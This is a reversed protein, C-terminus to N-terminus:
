VGPGTTLDPTHDDIGTLRKIRFYTSVMKDFEYKQRWRERNGLNEKVKVVTHSGKLRGPLSSWLFTFEPALCKAEGCGDRVIRVTLLLGIQTDPASMNSVANGLSYIVPVSETRGDKGTREIYGFDQVVHPHTGVILDAGNEALWEATKEQSASHSTSYEEGWHPLAIIFDAGLRGARLLAKRIQARDTFYTGPYGKGFGSNTGYTFNLFAIRLGKVNMMLPHNGAEDGANGASGAMRTGYEAELRRYVELTRELGSKGRDFIHNNATLFVDIGCEAMYEAYSDPASFAPYGTYPEGALTFEMNAVAVDAEGIDELIDCFYDSFDFDGTETRANDIQAQHLMVDGLFKLIVTDERCSSAPCGALARELVSTDDVAAAGYAPGPLAQGAATM